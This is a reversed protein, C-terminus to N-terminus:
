LKAFCSLFGNSNVVADKFKVVTVAIMEDNPLQHIPFRTCDTSPLAYWM